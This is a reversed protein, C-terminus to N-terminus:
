DDDPGSAMVGFVIPLHDSVTQFFAKGDGALARLDLVVADGTIEASATEDWVLLHDYLNESREGKNNLTSGEGTTRDRAKVVEALKAPVLNFDGVVFLDKEGPRAKAMAEFVEGIHAVEKQIEATKGESWTAHYAALLFDFGVAGGAPIAEFCGFAPERAFHDAGDGEPGGDNDRQYRLETWGSCPRAAQRRYLIAYFESSGSGTKPRPSATLQGGWSDGLQKLLADYGPHGGSKQMVEVVALVDFNGDIITAILPYNTEAGHGLKKINWAGLRLPKAAPPPAPPKASPQATPAATPPPPCGLLLGLLAALLLRRM